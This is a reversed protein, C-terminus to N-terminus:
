HLWSFLDHQVCHLMEVGHQEIGVPYNGRASPTGFAQLSPASIRGGPPTLIVQFRSVMEDRTAISRTAVRPRVSWRGWVSDDAGM